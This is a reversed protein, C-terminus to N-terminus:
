CTLLGGAREAALAERVDVVDRGMQDVLGEASDFRQEDRIRAVFELTLRLGRLDDAFDLLHAEISLPNKGFTPNHGVSIAAPYTRGDYCSYGAYIGTRPVVHCAEPAVNATPYGLGQGRGAGRVVTGSLLFRHGLAQTAASIDGVHVLERIRSSSIRADDLRQLPVVHLAFDEHAAMSALYAINGERRHGLAFDPGLWLERVDIRALIWEMFADASLRALGHTFPQVVCLDMGLAAMLAIKERADTLQYVPTHPQLVSRPIPDFTIVASKFGLDVARDVVGRLLYQHGRHVGDFTGITLITPDVGTENEGAAERSRVELDDVAFLM